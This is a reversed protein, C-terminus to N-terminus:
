VAAGSKFWEHICANQKGLYCVFVKDISKLILTLKSNDNGYFLVGEEM